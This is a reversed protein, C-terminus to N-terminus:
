KQYRGGEHDTASSSTSDNDADRDSVNFIQDFLAYSACYSIPITFLIGIGFALAGGINILAIVLLFGLFKWWRKTVIKRSLEMAGWFELKYFVILFVAFTYGVALYLGPIFLLLTGFFVLIGAILTYLILQGLHDFGKFFDGFELAQRTKIKHAFLYYGAAMPGAVLLLAFPIATAISTIILMLITYLVFEGIRSKFLEFGEGIADGISFDYAHILADQSDNLHHTNGTPSDIIEM